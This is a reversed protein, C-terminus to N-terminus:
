WHSSGTEDEDSGDYMKVMGDNKKREAPEEEPCCARWELMVRWPVGKAKLKPSCSTHGSSTM